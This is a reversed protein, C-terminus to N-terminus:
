FFSLSLKRFLYYKWTQTPQAWTIHQVQKELLTKKKLQMKRQDM